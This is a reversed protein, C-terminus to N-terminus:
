MNLRPVVQHLWHVFCWHKPNLVSSLLTDNAIFQAFSKYSCLGRDKVAIGNEPLMEVMDDSFNTERKQGPSTLLHGM